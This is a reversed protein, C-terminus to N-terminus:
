SPLSSSSRLHFHTCNLPTVLFLSHISLFNFIHYFARIRVTIPFLAKYSPPPTLPISSFILSTFFRSKDNQHHETETVPHHHHPSGSCLFAARVSVSNKQTAAKCPVLSAPLKSAPLPSGPLNVQGTSLPVPFPASHHLKFLIFCLQRKRAFYREVM